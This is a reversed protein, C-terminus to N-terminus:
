TSRAPTSPSSTSRCATTSSSSRSCTTCSSWGSARTSASRRRPLVAPAGAGARLRHGGAVAALGTPDGAGAGPAGPTAGPGARRRGGDPGRGGAPDLEGARRPQARHAGPQRRRLRHRGAPRGDARVRRLLPRGHRERRRRVRVLPHRRRGARLRRVVRRRLRAGARPGTRPGAGPQTGAALGDAAPRREAGRPVDAPVRRRGGGVPPRGAGPGGARAGCITGVAGAPHHGGPGRCARAGRLRGDGPLLAALRARVGPADGPAPVLAAAGRRRLHAAGLQPARGGRRLAVPVAVGGPRRRPRLALGPQRAADQVHPHLHGRPRRHVRSPVRAARARARRRLQHRRRRGRGQRGPVAVRLGRPPPPAGPRAPGGPPPLGRGRRGRRRRRDPGDGPPGRGRHLDRLRRRDRQHRQAPARLRPEDPAVPLAHGRRVPVAGAPDAPRVDHGGRTNGAARRGYM